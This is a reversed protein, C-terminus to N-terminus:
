EVRGVQSLHARAIRRADRRAPHRQVRRAAGSADLGACGRLPRGGGDGTSDHLRDRVPAAARRARQRAPRRGRPRAGFRQLSARRRRVVGGARRSRARCAPPHRVRDHRRAHRGQPRASRRAHPLTLRGRHAREPSRPVRLVSHDALADRPAGAHGRHREARDRRRRARHVSRDVHVHDDVFQPTRGLGRALLNAIDVDFGVLTDPHSPDAEVFPAGGEADGAWRFPPAPQAGAAAGALCLM